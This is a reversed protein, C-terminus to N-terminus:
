GPEEAPKQALMILCFAVDAVERLRFPPIYGEPAERVRVDQEHLLRLGADRLAGTYDDRTHPMDPLYFTEGPRSFQTRWGHAVIDPHFDSILLHGGPRLVRAFERIPGAVEPLHCLM